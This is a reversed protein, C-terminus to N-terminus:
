KKGWLFAKHAVVVLFDTFNSAERINVDFMWNSSVNVHNRKAVLKMTGEVSGYVLIKWCEFWFWEVCLLIRIRFSIKIVRFRIWIIFDLSITLYLCTSFLSKWIFTKCSMLCNNSKSKLNWQNQQTTNPSHSIIWIDSM